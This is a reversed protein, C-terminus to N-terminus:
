TKKAHGQLIFNKFVEFVLANKPLKLDKVVLTGMMYFGNLQNAM